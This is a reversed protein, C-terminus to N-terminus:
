FLRYVFNSTKITDTQSLEVVALYEKIKKLKKLNKYPLNKYKKSIKKIQPYFDTSIHFIDLDINGKKVMKLFQKKDKVYKKDIIKKIKM